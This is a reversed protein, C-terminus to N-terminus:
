HQKYANLYLSVFYFTKHKAKRQSITAETNIVAFFFKYQVFMVNSHHWNTM